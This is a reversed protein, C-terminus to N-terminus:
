NIIIKGASKNGLPSIVEYFYIGSKFENRDIYTRNGEFDRTSILKGSEDFLNLHFMGKELTFITLTSRTNIPNPTIESAMQNSVYNSQIATISTVTNSTSNTTVPSNYDFYIHATNNITTNLPIGTRPFISFRVLGHSNVEDTTSDPLMIQDFRFEIVRGSKISITAPHSAGLFVFTNLDLDSSITDRVIVTFATDNGTNQFNIQYKLENSNAINGSPEVTKNNPDFAAQVIPRCYGYNNATVTDGVLPYAVAVSNLVTGIITSTNLETNILYVIEEGPKLNNYAFTLTNGNINQPTTGSLYSLNNDLTVTAIDSITDTGKNKITLFYNPRSGPRHVTGNLEATIDTIGPIMKIGFNLTDINLGNPTVSKIAPTSTITWYPKPNLQISITSTNGLYNYHYIGSTDTDIAINGPNVILSQ